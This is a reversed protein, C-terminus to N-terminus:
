PAIQGAAHHAARVPEPLRYRPTCALVLRVADALTVRHGPSVFVPKVNTRTRLVVGITEDRDVLPVWAGKEPPVPDHRGVLRSKGCGVTPADIFLGIHCAIGIRRPHITGQGDFIFVDPTAQLKRLAALIVAGERFSLLGPVYPFPTPQSATVTQIVQLAPFRLVVVAARSVGDKVSVDVGAVLRISELPLPQDVIVRPALENQLRIAEAPTVDWSHLDRITVPM